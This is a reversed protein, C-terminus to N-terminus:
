AGVRREAEEEQHMQWSGRDTVGSGQCHDCPHEYMGSAYDERFDEGMEEMESGSFSAGHLHQTKRGQCMPCTIKEGGEDLSM